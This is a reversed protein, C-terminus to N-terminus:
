VQYPKSLLAHRCDHRDQGTGAESGGDDGCVWEKRESGLRGGAQGHAPVAAAAPMLGWVAPPVAM